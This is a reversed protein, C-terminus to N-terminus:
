VAEKRYAKCINKYHCWDACYKSEAMCIRCCYRNILFDINFNACNNCFIRLKFEDNIEYIIDILNDRINEMSELIERVITGLSNFFRKSM